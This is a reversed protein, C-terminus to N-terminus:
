RREGELSMSMLERALLLAEHLALKLKANEVQAAILERELQRAFDVNVVDNGTEVDWWMESDTRPTDTM